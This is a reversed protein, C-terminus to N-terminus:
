KKEEDGENITQETLIEAKVIIKYITHVSKNHM